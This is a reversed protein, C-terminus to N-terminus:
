AHKRKLLGFGEVPKGIDVVSPIQYHLPFHPLDPQLCFSELVPKRLLVRGCVVRREGKGGGGRGKRREIKM